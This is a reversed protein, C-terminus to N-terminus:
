NFPQKVPKRVQQKGAPRDHSAPKFQEALMSPPSAMMLDPHHMEFMLGFLPHGAAAWRQRATAVDFAMVRHPLNGVHQMPIFQRGLFVDQFLLADYQRDLPSRATIVMWDIGNQVCYEFYAKFLMTKVIKGIQNSTVGLRTAEALSRGQLWDPLTVSQELGLAHFRNTQIRITGLSSGDLKSEALLVITDPALDAPEFRLLNQALEPLHRSYAAHRIGVAKQLAQKDNVIKITFPLREEPLTATAVNRPFSSPIFSDESSHSSHSSTNAVQDQKM